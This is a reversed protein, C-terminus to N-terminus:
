RGLASPRRDDGRNEVRLPPSPLFFRSASLGAFAPRARRRALFRVTSAANAAPASLQLRAAPVFRTWLTSATKRLM